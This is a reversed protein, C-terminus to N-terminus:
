LELESSSEQDDPAPIEHQDLPLKDNEIKKNLAKSFVQPIGLPFLPLMKTNLGPTPPASASHMRPEELETQVAVNEYKPATAPGQWDQQTQKQVVHTKRTKTACEEAITSM